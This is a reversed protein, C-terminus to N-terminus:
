FAVQFLAIMDEETCSRPNVLHRGDARAKAAMVPIAEERVGVDRLRQPTGIDQSLQRVSEVASRAADM